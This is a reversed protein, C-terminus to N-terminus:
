ASESAKLTLILTPYGNQRVRRWGAVRFGAARIMRQVEDEIQPGWFSPLLRTCWRFLWNFVKSDEGILILTVVGDPRIVRRFEEIALFRRNDDLLEMVLSSFVFDISESAVPLSCASATSCSCKSEPFRHRAARDSRVAMSHSYDIGLTRGKGNLAILSRFLEGSGTGVELINSGDRVGSMELAAKHAEAHFLYSSAPYVTAIRDYLRRSSRVVSGGRPPTQLHRRLAATSISNLTGM